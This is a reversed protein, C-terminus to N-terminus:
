TLGVSVTVDAIGSPYYPAADVIVIFTAATVQKNPLTGIIVISYNGIAGTGLYSLAGSSSDVLLFSPLQTGDNSLASYTYTPTM